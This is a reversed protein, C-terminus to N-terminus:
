SVARRYLHWTAHGLIPLVVMLGVLFPISGLVLGGAVIAGWTLIVRPNKRAVEISTVVAVPVGVNRDLLLPFSVVSVALAVVAFGAGVGMGIVIMAWGARTRLVEAAFAAVSAPPEPGLTLAYIANAALMWTLFLGLMVVGLVLIASFAPREIVALAQTWGADEGAERRRSIEYLSVAAVPGLLAFGAMMPFVMPLLNMHLGAAVLFLGALPYILVMLLADARSAMADAYGARLAARLDSLDLQRLQPPATDTEGALSATSRSMHAGAFGLQRALWSAPNGITREAM